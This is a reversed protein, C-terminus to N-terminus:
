SRQQKLKQFEKLFIANYITEDNQKKSYM